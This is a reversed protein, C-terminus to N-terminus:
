EGRDKKRQAEEAAIQEPLSVERPKTSTLTRGLARDFNDPRWNTEGNFWGASERNRRAEHAYVQLVHECDAETAGSELREAVRSLRADASHLSRSGPISAKRLKEQLTWLRLCAERHKDLAESGTKNKSSNRNRLQRDLQIPMQIRRSYAGKKGNEKLNRLWEIRGTTGKIRFNANDLKEALGVECLLYPFEDSGGAISLQEGTLIYTDLKTCQRWVFLMRGLADYVSTELRRGLMAFRVDDFAEGDVRVSAGMQDV